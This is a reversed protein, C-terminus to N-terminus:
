SRTKPKEQEMYAEPLPIIIVTQKGITFSGEFFQDGVFEIKVLIMIPKVFGRLEIDLAAIKNNIDVIKTESYEKVKLGMEDLMPQYYEHTYKKTFDHDDIYKKLMHAVDLVIINKIEVGNECVENKNTPIQALHSNVSGFLTLCLIIITIIYKKM